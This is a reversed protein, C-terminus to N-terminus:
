HRPSRRTGAMYADTRFVLKGDRDVFVNQYLLRVPIEQPLSVFTPEGSQRAEDWADAVGEQAALMEAFGLADTM